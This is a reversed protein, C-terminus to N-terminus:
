PQELGESVALAAIVPYGTFIIEMIANLEKKLEFQYDEHLKNMKEQMQLMRRVVYPALTDFRAPKFKMLITQNIQLGIHLMRFTLLVEGFKDKTVKMHETIHPNCSRFDMLLYGPTQSSGSAATLWKKIQQELDRVREDTSSSDELLEFQLKKVLIQDKAILRLLLKDKDAPRMKVIAAKLHDDIKM